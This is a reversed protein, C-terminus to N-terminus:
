EVNPVAKHLDAAQRLPLFTEPNNDTSNIILQDITMFAAGVLGATKGLVSKNIQLNRAALPLSRQYVGQRLSALLIDGLESVSGGLSILAPNYFNALAAVVRGIQMGSERVLKLSVPDLNQLGSRIDKVTIGGKANLIDLLFPSEGALALAEGKAALAKGGAIAELCGHNGCWCLVDSGVDFHGIDGASGNEGRYLQGLCIIGSGIGAGIKIYILNDVEFNVGKAHEGLAMVNVDNDVYCPCDFHKAWFDRIPYRDWGPMIPPSIPLGSAFEVPSPIGIGIGMVTHPEVQHRAMLDKVRGCLHALVRDPGESVHVGCRHSFLINSDFDCIAVRGSSIGLEISIVHGVNRNVAYLKPKRGGSSNGIESVKILKEAHLREVHDSVASWSM